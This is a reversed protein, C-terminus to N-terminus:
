PDGGATEGTVARLWVEFALCSTFSGFKQSMGFRVLEAERRFEAGDLYGMEVLRSSRVVPEIAAWRKAYAKYASPGPGATGRRTRVVDPLRGELARRLLLKGMEPAVKQEWPIALALEVLPRYLFPYRVECAWEHYGRHVMQESRSLREAQLQQALSRFRRETRRRGVRGHLHLRRAFDKGVWPDLTKEDESSRLYLGPRLLPHLVFSLLLNALPRHTGRQWRLLERGFAGFRLGRLHDALHVPPTLDSLVVSEARSGCLLAAVGSARLLDTEAVFMPHTFIGFHPENRQLSAETAGDFFLDDCPIQHQVLGYQRAVPESFRREDSQPTDNWVFSVTAFGAARVPDRRLIEQAVCVISSSDLGGSLEAWVRGGTALSREVAEQFLALFREDNESETRNSLPPEDTFDWSRRIATRGAAVTLQHGAQLRRFEKFPTRSGISVQGTLFDAVYEEDLDSLAPRGLMQLRSAFHLRGDCRRYFLERLGFTDRAAVLRREARDWLLFAFEGILRGIGDAGWREYAAAILRAESGPGAEEPPLGLDRALEVRNDLTGDVVAECRGPVGEAAPPATGSFAPIWVLGFGDGPLFRPPGGWRLRARAALPELDRTGVPGGGLDVIGGIAVRV